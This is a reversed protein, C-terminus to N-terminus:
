CASAATERAQSDASVRCPKGAESRGARTRAAPDTTDLTAQMGEGGEGM